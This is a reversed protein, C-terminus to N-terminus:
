GFLQQVTSGVKNATEPLVFDMKHEGCVAVGQYAFTIDQRVLRGQMIRVLDLEEPNEGITAMITAPIM